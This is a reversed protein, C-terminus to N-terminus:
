DLDLTTKRQQYGYLRLMGRSDQAGEAALSLSVIDASFECSDFIQQVRRTKWPILTKGESNPAFTAHM